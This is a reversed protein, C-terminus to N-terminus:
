PTRAKLENKVFSLIEEGSYVVQDKEMEAILKAILRNQIQLFLNQM